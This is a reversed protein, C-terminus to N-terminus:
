KRKGFFWTRGRKTAVRMSFVIAHYIALHWWPWRGCTLETTKAKSYSCKSWRKSQFECIKNTQWMWCLVCHLTQNTSWIRLYSSLRGTPLMSAVRYCGVKAHQRWLSCQARRLFRRVMKRNWKWRVAQSTQSKSASDSYGRDRIKVRRCLLNSNNQNPRAWPARYNWAASSFTTTETTLIFRALFSALTKVKRCSEPCNRRTSHWAISITHSISVWSFIPDHVGPMSARSQTLFRTNQTTKMLSSRQNTAVKELIKMMVM